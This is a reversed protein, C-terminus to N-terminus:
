SPQNRADPRTLGAAIRDLLRLLEAREQATLMADIRRDHRAACAALRALTRKGKATLRLLRSRGDRPHAAREIVGHREMNALSPTLTTKDRGIAASLATQTIGPNDAIIQLMAYHGPRLGSEDTLESFASFSAEQAVRLRYAIKDALAGMRVPGDEAAPEVVAPAIRRLSAAAV